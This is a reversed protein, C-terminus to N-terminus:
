VKKLIVRSPKYIGTYICLSGIKGRIFRKLNGPPILPNAGVRITKFGFNSLFLRFEGPTLYNVHGPHYHSIAMKKEIKKANKLSNIEKDLNMFPNNIYFYGGKTMNDYIRSIDERPNVLHEFVANCIVADFPGYNQMEEWSRSAVIGPFNYLKYFEPHYPHHPDYAFVDKVGFARAMNCWTGSGAGYDLLRINRSLDNIALSIVNYLVGIKYETRDFKKYSDYNNWANIVKQESLETYGTEFNHFVDRVYKAGCNTCRVVSSITDESWGIEELWETPHRRVKALYDYTYTFIIEYNDADCLICRRTIKAGEKM